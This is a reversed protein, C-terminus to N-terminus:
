HYGLIPEINDMWQGPRFETSQVGRSLLVRWLKPGSELENWAVAGGHLTGVLGRLRRPAHDVVIELAEGDSLNGILQKLVTHRVSGDVERVDISRIGNSCTNETM